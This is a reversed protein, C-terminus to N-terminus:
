QLAVRGFRVNGVEVVPIFVRQRAGHFLRQCISVNLNVISPHLRNTRNHPLILIRNAFAKSILQVFVGPSICEEM